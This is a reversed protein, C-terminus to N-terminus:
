VRWQSVYPLRAATALIERKASLLLKTADWHGEIFQMRPGDAIDVSFSLEGATLSRESLNLEINLNCNDFCSKQLLEISESDVVVCPLGVAISNNFFIEGFSEGVVADIGWRHLAQPAHERSSGCGFNKNVILINASQRRDEDFPHIGGAAKLQARDDHFVLDGLGSFTGTKLFRAPIIRDTDIDNGQLAIAKGKVIDIKTETV